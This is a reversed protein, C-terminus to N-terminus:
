AAALTNAIGVAASGFVTILESTADALREGRECRQLVREAVLSVDGDGWRTICEFSQHTTRGSKLLVVLLDVFEVLSASTDNRQRLPPLPLRKILRVLM